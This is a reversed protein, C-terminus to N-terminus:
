LCSPLGNYRLLLMQELHEDSLRSQQPTCVDGGHNFLRDVPACSTLVTNFRLFLQHISPFDKLCHLMKATGDLYRLVEGKPGRRNSPTGPGFNFFDDELTNCAGDVGDDAADPDLHAAEAMLAAQVEERDAGSLWWLRFQPMTAAAMKASHSSFVPAFRSDIGALLADIAASFFQTENKKERLKQKLTMLTPIALGFFGKEEGQLLSLSIALPKLVGVYEKLLAIEDHLLKTVNNHDCLQAFVADSLSMLHEVVGYEFSWRSVQPVVKVKKPDGAAGSPKHTRSWLTSCKAMASSYLSWTVHQTLAKLLDESAVLSLMHSVSQQHPPLFYVAGELPQASLLASVDVFEWQDGEDETDVCLFEHFAHVCKSGSDTVVAQVKSEISYAVHVEHIKSAVTNYTLEGRIRACALAASKRQLHNPDIWHCMMSLYSKGRATWIDVTTCVSPVDNLKVKLEEVMHAQEEQLRDEVAERTTLMVGGSLGEVLKRFAPQELLSLPQLDEMIFNFVLSDVVAQSEDLMAEQQFSADDEVKVQKLPPDWQIVHNSPGPDTQHKLQGVRIKKAKLEEFLGSHRRQFAVFLSFM